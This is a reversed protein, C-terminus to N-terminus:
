VPWAVTVAEVAAVTTAAEIADAATNEAAVMDSIWDRMEAANAEAVPGTLVGLAVSSQRWAPYRAYIRRQCESRNDVIHAAKAAALQEVANPERLNQIDDGWVLTPTLEGDFRVHGAPTPAQDIWLASTTGIKIAYSM